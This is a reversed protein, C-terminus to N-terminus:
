KVLKTGDIKWGVNKKTENKQLMKFDVGSM